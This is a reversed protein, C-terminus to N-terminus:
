EKKELIGNKWQYVGSGLSAGDRLINIKEFLNAGITADMEMISRVIHNVELDSTGKNTQVESLIKELLNRTEARAENREIEQSQRFAEDKARERKRNMTYGFYVILLNGGSILTALFELKM